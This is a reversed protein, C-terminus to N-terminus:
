QPKEEPRPADVFDDPDFKYDRLFRYTDRDFLWMRATEYWGRLWRTM